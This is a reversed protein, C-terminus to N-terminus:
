LGTVEAIQHILYKKRSKEELCLARTRRISIKKFVKGNLEFRNGVSINELYEQSHISETDYQRLAKVLQSDSQSSAKPNRMHKVLVTLLDPPFVEPKLIPEMLQQFEKKWIAGHPSKNNKHNNFHALHAVEHVYTILFAYKNLNGNVSVEYRNKIKNYRYDGLKSKRVRSVKFSFTFTDWLHTCYDITTGPVYRSIIEQFKDRMPLAM